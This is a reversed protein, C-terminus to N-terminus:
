ISRVTNIVLVSLYEKLWMDEPTHLAGHSNVSIASDVKSCMGFKNM